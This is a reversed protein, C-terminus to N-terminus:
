AVSGWAGAPNDGVAWIDSASTASISQLSTSEPDPSPVAAWASGTWHEIVALRPPSGSLPSVPAL